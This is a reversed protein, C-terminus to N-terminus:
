IGFQNTKLVQVMQRKCTFRTATQLRGNRMFVFCFCLVWSTCTDEAILLAPHINISPDNKSRKGSTTSYLLISFPLRSLRENSQSSVNSLQSLIVAFKFFSTFHGFSTWAFYLRRRSHFFEGAKGQPKQRGITPYSYPWLHMM